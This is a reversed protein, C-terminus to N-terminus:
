DSPEVIAVFDDLSFDSYIERRLVHWQDMEDLVAAGGWANFAILYGSDAVLDDTVENFSGFPYAFCTVPARIIEELWKKNDVIQSRQADESLEALHPHKVTHGCVEGSVALDRIQEDSLETYSPLFYVGRFGYEDLLKKFTMTSPNGDDITLMVPKAPLPLERYAAKYLDVPTISAYGQQKLWQLQEELQRPRVFFRSDGQDSIHHYMLVPVAAPPTSPFAQFADALAYGNGSPGTVRRWVYGDRRILKEKLEVTMGFGMSGVIPCDTGPGARLNLAGTTVLARGPKATGRPPRAVPTGNSLSCAVHGSAGVGRVSPSSAGVPTSDPTSVPESSEERNSDDSGCSSLTVMLLVSVM